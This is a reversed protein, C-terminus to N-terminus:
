FRYIFSFVTEYSEAKYFGNMNDFLGDVNTTMVFYDKDKALSYLRQYTPDKQIVYYVDNVHIALYGWMMAPTWGSEADAKHHTILEYQMRYGRKTLAPFLKAFKKTDLYNIGAPVSMGAGAGILVADAGDILERCKKLISKDTKVM